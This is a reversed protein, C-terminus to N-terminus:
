KFLQKISFLVGYLWRALQYHGSFALRYLYNFSKKRPVSFVVDKDKLFANTFDKSSFHDKGFMFARGFIYSTKRQYVLDKFPTDRMLDVFMDRMVLDNHYTKEDYYRSLSEPNTVYHYFAKELHAIKIDHKLLQCLGYQDECGYFEVPYVVDYDRYKKLRILKNWCYGYQRGIIMEKLVSQADLSLPKQSGYFQANGDNRYNDCILMDADEQLAKEYMEELCNLDVWDDQDFQVTYEGKAIELAKNRADALGGNPKHLVRVRSDQLAYEDAIDGCRDPSGDDVLILEFDKFTQNLVCDIMRSVTEEGKYMCIIVTIAPSTNKNVENM